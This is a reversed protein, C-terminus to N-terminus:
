GPKRKRRNKTKTKKVPKIMLKSKKHRCHSYSESKDNLNALNPYFMIYYKEKICLGCKDTVPSYTAARDILKYTVQYNLNNDKLEWIHKSLATQNDERDKFSHTHINKRAKFTTSALGIYHDQTQDDQTVTAQYVLNNVM